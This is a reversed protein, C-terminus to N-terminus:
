LSCLGPIIIVGRPYKDAASLPGAAYKYHIDGRGISVYPLDQSSSSSDPMVQKPVLLDGMHDWKQAFGSQPDVELSM